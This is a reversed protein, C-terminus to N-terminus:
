PQLPKENEDVIPARNIEYAVWAWLSLLVAILIM